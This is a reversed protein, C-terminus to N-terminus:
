IGGLKREMYFEEIKNFDPEIYKIFPKQLNNIKSFPIPLKENVTIMPKMLPMHNEWKFDIPHNLTGITNYYEKIDDILDAYGALHLWRECFELWMHPQFDEIFSGGRDFRPDGFMNDKDHLPKPIFIKGIQNETAMNNEQITSPYLRAYTKKV